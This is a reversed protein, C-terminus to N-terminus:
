SFSCKHHTSSFLNENSCVQPVYDDAQLVRDLHENPPLENPFATLLTREARLARALGESLFIRDGFATHLSRIHMDVFAIPLRCPANLYRHLLHAM